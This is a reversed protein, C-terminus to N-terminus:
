IMFTGDERVESEAEYLNEELCQLLEICDELKIDDRLGKRGRGDVYLLRTIRQADYRFGSIYSLLDRVEM